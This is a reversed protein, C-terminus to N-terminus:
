PAVPAVYFPNPFCITVNDQSPSSWFGDGVAFTKSIEYWDDDAWGGYALEKEADEPDTFNSVYVAKPSYKKTASNWWKIWSGGDAPDGDLVVNQIDLTTPFANIVMIQRGAVAVTRGVYQNATKEVAGATTIGVSNMSPSFWFGEGPAFTKSIEYWDDDAWGGYALEKEDDEPDTFNSVYVAKPSYTKAAPDWWKIWSGGDAPDGVLTIDQIDLAEAGVSNFSAGVMEQYGAKTVTKTSYGVLCQHAYELPFIRTGGEKFDKSLATIHLLM